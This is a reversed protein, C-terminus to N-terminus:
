CPGRVPISAGYVSRSQHSALFLIVDAIAEPKVWLDYNADPNEARDQPSDIMNPLVANVNINFPRLEKAMSETLRIVADKAVTYAAMRPKGSVASFAATNIIKGSRRSKMSPIVAKSSLFVTQANLRLLFDWTKLETEEVLPGSRYGGATNVLVDVRDFKDIVSAVADQVQLEDTLDVNNVLLHDPHDALAPYQKALRDERRDTLALRAGQNLFAGAVAMALNGAAGPLLVIQGSFETM